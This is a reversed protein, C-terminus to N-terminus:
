GFAVYRPEDLGSAYKLVWEDDNRFWYVQLLLWLRLTGEDVHRLPDFGLSSVLTVMDLDTPGRIARQWDILRYGDPLVFLNDGCLDRHVYGPRTCIAALVSESFAWRELDRVLAEDTQEFAGDEIRRRLHEFLSRAFEKWRAEGRIDYAYPLDGEIAAIHALVERGIRAVEEEPLDLDELLPADVFEILLCDYGDASYVTQAQPLLESRARAYFEAEVTGRQSKYILKRGDALALRQVCSLPWEHLTVREVLDSGALPVLEEDDHLWLDFYPHRHVYGGDLVKPLRAWMKDRIARM